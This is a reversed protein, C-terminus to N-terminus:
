REAAVLKDFSTTLGDRTLRATRRRRRVIQGIALLGYLVSLAIIVVRNAQASLTISVLFQASFLVFLTIAGSLTLGLNILISVAFLSQAATILLEFRQNTDLPLGDTTSASLAFMIPITGVLLTWQNVKSSLLTGLSHSAKLRAAYLCAVILEPSESALPAVWQVLVFQDIGLQGGTAVLGAAFHEATSLIVLGAATFMGIVFGRRRKRPKRGVWRSVGALDPHEAPAQSLRWAYGAFISILEAADVMTLTTRLPLTLSYLTAIGLFVVEASMKPALEVRGSHASASDNGGARRARWVAITAVLVVLPWGVGVLVRNAGTMNALALSCPNTGDPGAMCMGHEAYVQGAEYTFVFDVAYEPLVALLALLAIALGASIDVQAAEAAWSLVFAAGVIAVGFVLAALPPALGPHPLGLYAAAGLYTGPAAVAVAIPFQAPFRRQEDM